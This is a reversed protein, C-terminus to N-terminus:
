NWNFILLYECIKSTTLQNTKNKMSKQTPVYTKNQRKKKTGQKVLKQKLPCLRNKKIEKYEKYEWYYTISFIASTFAKM